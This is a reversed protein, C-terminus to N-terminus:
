LVSRHQDTVSLTSCDVFQPPVAARRDDEHQVLRTKNLHCTCVSLSAGEMDTNRDVVSLLHFYLGNELGLIERREGHEFLRDEFTRGVYPVVWLVPVPEPENCVVRQIIGMPVQFYRVPTVGAPFLRLVAFLPRRHGFFLDQFMKPGHFTFHDLLDGYHVQIATRTKRVKERVFHFQLEVVDAVNLLMDTFEVFPESRVTNFEAPSQLPVLLLFSWVRVVLLM